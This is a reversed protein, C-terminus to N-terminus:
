EKGQEYKEDKSEHEDLLPAVAVAVKKAPRQGLRPDGPRRAPLFPCRSVFHGDAGCRVCLGQDRRKQIETSAVWKARKGESVSARAISPQWDMPDNSEQDVSVERQQQYGRYTTWPRRSQQIKESVELLSEKYEDYTMRRTGMSITREYLEKSITAELSAKKSADSDVYRGAELLLKEFEQLHARFTKGSGQRLKNLRVLANEREYRDGFVERIKSLLEVSSVYGRDSHQRIWPTIKEAADGRLKGVLFWFKTKEMCGAFDVALKATATQLWLELGKWGGFFEGLDITKGPKREGQVQNDAPVTQEITTASERAQLQRTLIERQQREQNLVAEMQSIRQLLADGWQQQQSGQQEAQQQGMHQQESLQQPQPNEMEFDM